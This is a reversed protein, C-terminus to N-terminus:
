CFAGNRCQCFARAPRTWIRPANHRRASRSEWWIAIMRWAAPDAAGDATIRWVVGILAIVFALWTDLVALMARLHNTVLLGGWGPLAPAIRGIAFRPAQRPVRARVAVAAIVGTASWFLNRGQWALLAAAFWLVPNLALTAIRLALRTHSTLPWLSM